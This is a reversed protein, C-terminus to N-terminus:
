ARLHSLSFRISAQMEVRFRVKGPIHSKAIGPFRSFHFRGSSVRFTSSHRPPGTAVVCSLTVLWSLGGGIIRCQSM